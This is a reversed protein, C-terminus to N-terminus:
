QGVDGDARHAAHKANPADNVPLANVDPLVGRPASIPVGPLAPLAQQGARLIQEGNRMYHNAEAPLHASLWGAGQAFGPLLTSQRWWSAGALPTFALVLVIVTVLLAGRVLGFLMGLLRDAGTLGSGRILKRLVWGLLAGAMLVGLFCTLYGAIIRAAPQHLWQAYWAALADGFMWAVWFAAIWCVLALVEAVFGRWLGFLVSLALVALIIYDANNM